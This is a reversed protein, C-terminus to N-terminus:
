TPNNPSSLVMKLVVSLDISAQKQWMFCVKLCAEM